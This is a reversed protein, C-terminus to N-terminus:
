RRALRESTQFLMLATAKHTHEPVTHYTIEAMFGLTGESGIMLHQLIEFPDEYDVLANLSYGCTNKIKFKRRIREALAEDERTRKALEELRNLLQGHSQVFCQRSADDGTDLVTGDALMLRMSKLTKYSNQATGCCMGSANNAAIGGIQCANISAPDPGIKKKHPALYRNAHGGIVAPQLTISAADESIRWGRWDDGIMLLVSDTIAQGSLSTGAGRFTIPTGHNHALKLIRSMEEENGVQVVLQPVLRYMSADTGYALTRLPDRILREEPIFARLDNYLNEYSAQPLM